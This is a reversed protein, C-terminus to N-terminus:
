GYWHHGKISTDSRHTRQCGMDVHGKRQQQTLSPAFPHEPMHLAAPIQLKGLPLCLCTLLAPQQASEVWQPSHTLLSSDFPMEKTFCRRATYRVSFFELGLCDQVIGYGKGTVRQLLFTSQTQQLALLTEVCLLNGRTFVCLVCECLELLLFVM